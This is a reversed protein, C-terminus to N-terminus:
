SLRAAARTIQVDGSITRVTLRLDCGTAPAADGVDLDTDTAGSMTSVDLWVGVGASVGVAVDGSASNVEVTGRRTEGVAVDGSASRARLSGGAAGIAIDGSATHADIDGEAGRLAVDGSMSRLSAAGGVHGVAVDGSASQVSVDGTVDGAQVDGSATTATLGGLRGHCALDASALSATVPSEEPLVVTVQLKASKRLGGRLGDRTEVILEDGHLEVRTRDLLTDSDARLEVTTTGTPEARVEVDGAQLNVRLTIPAPTTFEETRFESM